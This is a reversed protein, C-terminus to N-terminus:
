SRQKPMGYSQKSRISIRKDLGAAPLNRIEADLCTCNRTGNTTWCEFVVLNKVMQNSSAIEPSSSGNKSRYQGWQPWVVSGRRQILKSILCHLMIVSMDEKQWPTHSVSCTFSSTAAIIASRCSSSVAGFWLEFWTCRIFSVTKLNTVFRFLPKSIYTKLLKM